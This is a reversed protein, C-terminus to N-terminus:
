SVLILPWIQILLGLLLQKCHWDIGAQQLGPSAPGTQSSCPTGQEPCLSYGSSPEGRSTRWESVKLLSLFISCYKLCGCFCLLRMTMCGHAKSWSFLEQDDVLVWWRGGGTDIDLVYPLVCIAASLWTGILWSMTSTFHVARRLRCAKLWWISSASATNTLVCTSWVLSRWCTPTCVPKFMLNQKISWYFLHIFWMLLASPLLFSFIWDTAETRHGTSQSWMLQPLILHAPSYFCLAASYCQVRPSKSGGAPTLSSHM